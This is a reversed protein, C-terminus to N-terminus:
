DSISSRDIMLKDNRNGFRRHLEPAIDFAISHVSGDCFVFNCVTSHASGFSEYDQVGARDRLPPLYTDRSKNFPLPLNFNSAALRELDNDYGQFLMGDDGYRIGTSYHLPDCFKEGALYTNSTGDVIDKTNVTSRAYTVGTLQLTWANWTFTPASSPSQPGWCTTDTGEGANAAYDSRGVRTVSYNVNVGYSAYLPSLPLLNLPRRTPCNMVPLLMQIMQTAAAIKSSSALSGRGKGMDHVQKLELYELINYIWGGPQARRYGRDPDGVWNFGWGGTPFCGQASLHSQCATGIQRLNNMCQARRAAERAAQVAPLLLAILIGIIAIVVLLEVLTFAHMRQLFFCKRRKM